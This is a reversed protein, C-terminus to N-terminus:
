VMGRSNMATSRGSTILFLRPLIDKPMGPALHTSGCCIWRVTLDGPPNIRLLDVQRDPKDALHFTGSKQIDLCDKFLYPKFREGQREFTDPM